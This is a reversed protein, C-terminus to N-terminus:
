TVITKCTDDGNILCIRTLTLISQPSYYDILSNNFVCYIAKGRVGSGKQWRNAKAKLLWKREILEIFVSTHNWKYIVGHNSQIKMQKASMIQTGLQELCQYYVLFTYFSM